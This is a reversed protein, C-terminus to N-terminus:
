GKGGTPMLRLKRLRMDADRAASELRAVRGTLMASAPADDFGENRSRFVTLAEGVGRVAAVVAATMATTTMVELHVRELARLDRERAVQWADLLWEQALRPHGPEFDDSEGTLFDLSVSYMRSAAVLLWLPVSSTDSAGECKSLKSPNKYGLRRAAESQSLLNMERATRLREGITRILQLQDHKTVAVPSALAAADAWDLTELTGVAEDADAPAARLPEDNLQM